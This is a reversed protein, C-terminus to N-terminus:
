QKIVSTESSLTCNFKLVPMLFKDPSAMGYWAMHTLNIKIRAIIAATNLEAM